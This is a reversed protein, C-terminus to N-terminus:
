HTPFIPCNSATERTSSPTATGDMKNMLLIHFRKHINKALFVVFLIAIRLLLDLLSQEGRLRTSSSTIKFSQCEVRTQQDPVTLEVISRNYM